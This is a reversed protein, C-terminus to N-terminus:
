EERLALAPSTRSMRYAPYLGALLAAIIALLLARAFVDPGITLQLTWGFSRRNIIYVLVLAVLMGVPLALLGATLGMLGTQGLVVGWLQRPTLGNARMV